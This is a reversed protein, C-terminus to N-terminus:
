INDPYLPFKDRESNKDEETEEVAPIFIFQGWELKPIFKLHESSIAYDGRANLRKYDECIHPLAGAFGSSRGDPNIHEFGEEVKEMCYPCIRMSYANNGKIIHYTDFYSKDIIVGLHRRRPREQEDDHEDYFAPDNKNYILPRKM